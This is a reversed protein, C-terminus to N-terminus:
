KLPNLYSSDEYYVRCKWNQRALMRHGVEWRGYHRPPYCSTFLLAALLLRIM